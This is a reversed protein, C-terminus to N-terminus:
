SRGRMYFWLVVPWLLWFLTHCTFSVQHPASNYWRLIERDQDVIHLVIAGVFTYTGILLLTIALLIV